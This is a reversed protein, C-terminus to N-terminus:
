GIEFRWDMRSAFNGNFVKKIEWFYLFFSPRIQGEWVLGLM